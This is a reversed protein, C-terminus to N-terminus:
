RSCEGAWQWVLVVYSAFGLGATTLAASAWALGPRQSLARVVGHIAGGIFLWGLVFVVGWGTALLAGRDCPDSTFVAGLFFVGGFALAVTVCGARL